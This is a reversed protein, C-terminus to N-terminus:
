QSLPVLRSLPNLLFLVRMMNFDNAIGASVSSAKERLVKSRSVSKVAILAVLPCESDTVLQRSAWCALKGSGMFGFRGRQSRHRKSISLPRSPGRFDRGSSPRLIVVMM